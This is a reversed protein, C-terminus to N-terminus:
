KKILAEVLVRGGSCTFFVSQRHVGSVPEIRFDHGRVVTPITMVCDKGQNNLKSKIHGAVMNTLEGIADNVMEDEQIEEEPMGLLSSTMHRAFSTSSYLYIIASYTGTFGVAGAIHKEGNFFNEVPLAFELAYSLMTTFVSEAASKLIPQWDESMVTDYDASKTPAQPSDEVIKM